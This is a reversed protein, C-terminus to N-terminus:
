YHMGTHINILFALGFLLIRIRFFWIVFATLPNQYAILEPDNLITAPIIFILGIILHILNPVVSYALVMRIQNRTAKGQFLIKGVGWLVYTLLTNFFLVGLMGIFLLSFFLIVFLNADFVGYLEPLSSLGATVSVLFFILNIDFSIEEFNRQALFDFTKLLKIWISVIPKM